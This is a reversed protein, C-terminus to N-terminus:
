PGSDVALAPLRGQRTREERIHVSGCRVCAEPNEPEGVANVFSGEYLVDRLANVALEREEPRLARIEDRVRFKRM